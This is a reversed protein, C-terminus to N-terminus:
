LNHLRALLKRDERLNKELLKVLVQTPVYKKDKRREEM